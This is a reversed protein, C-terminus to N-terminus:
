RISVAADRYIIVGDADKTVCSADRRREIPHAVIKLTTTNSVTRTEM